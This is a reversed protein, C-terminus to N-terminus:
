RRSRKRLRQDKFSVKRSKSAKRKTRVNRHRTGAMRSDEESYLMTRQIRTRSQIRMKRPRPKRCQMKGDKFLKCLLTEPEFNILPEPEKTPDQSTRPTSFHIGLGIAVGAFVGAEAGGLVTVGLSSLNYNVAVELGEGTALDVVTSGLTADFLILEETGDLIVTTAELIGATALAEAIGAGAAVIASLIAGM